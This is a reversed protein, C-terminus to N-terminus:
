SFLRAIDQSKRMVARQIDEDISGALMAFRVLCANKQGIRHIRMAAQENNSPTWDTEVFLADAAATLNFGICTQIQGIFVKIEPRNQFADIRLQRDRSEHSGDIGTYGINEQELAGVLAHIVDRHYAFVALKKGGAEIWDAIWKACSEAKVLGTLRRLQAVHPALEKLGGIGKEALAKRVLAFQDIDGDFSPITGSVALTDFRIPPLDNLVEEKKRRLMFGDLAARLSEHNKSKVVRTGGHGDAATLCYRTEFTPYKMPRGNVGHIQGPIMAHLMTWLEGYHNAVPTGTLLFVREAREIIGGVGDCKKGYIVQTRRADPTKLYHAEDVILVDWLHNTIGIWPKDVIDDYSQVVPKVGTTSFKVFERRWNERVSAPCIVLVHKAGVSECAIIAQASKGLGMDDALLARKRGALFKGGEVQFPFPQMLNAKSRLARRCAQSDM